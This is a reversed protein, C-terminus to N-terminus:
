SEAAIFSSLDPSRDSPVARAELTVGRARLEALRQADGATLNVSGTVARSGEDPHLNGLNLREFRVGADLADVAGGIDAFLVIVRRTLGEGTVFQAAEEPDTLRVELGPHSLGQLLATRLPDGVLGRDVVLITDAKLQPVWAELVQGHVLRNDVRALVVAV